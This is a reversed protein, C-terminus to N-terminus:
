VVTLRLYELYDDEVYFCASWSNGRQIIQWHNGAIALRTRRLM